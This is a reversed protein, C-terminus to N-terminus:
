KECKGRGLSHIFLMTDLIDDKTMPKDERTSPIVGNLGDPLTAPEAWLPDHGGMDAGILGEDSGTTEWVEDYWPKEM